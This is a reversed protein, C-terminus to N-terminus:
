VVGVMLAAYLSRGDIDEGPGRALGGDQGLLQLLRGDALWTPARGHVTAAHSSWAWDQPLACLGARVPNLALYAILTWLQLDFLVRRSGYRNEFVHGSFRYKRNFARAYRGHLLCMGEGLNPQPTEIVLHVHNGMLCYALVRWGKEEVVKALMKLYLLRDEDDVFILSRKAGRAYVHHIAGAEELRPKRPM